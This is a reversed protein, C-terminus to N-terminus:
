MGELDKAVCVAWSTFIKKDQYSSSLGGDDARLWGHGEDAAWVGCGEANAAQVRGYEADGAWAGGDQAMCLVFFLLHISEM